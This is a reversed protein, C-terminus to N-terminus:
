EIAVASGAMSLSNDYAQDQNNDGGCVVLQECADGVGDGDEDPQVPWGAETGPANFVTPCNDCADGFGDGDSDLQLPDPAGPCIDCNDDVGDGDSDSGGPFCAAEARASVGSIACIALAAMLAALSSRRAIGPRVGAVLSSKSDSQGTREM